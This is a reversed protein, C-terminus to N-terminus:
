KVVPKAAEKPAETVVPEETFKADEVIVAYYYGFGFDKDTDLRGEAVVTDGIKAMDNASRFVLKNKGKTGTGDQIHVWTMGMVNETVKVVKGRVKIIQGKMSDAIKYLREITYIGDAPAPESEEEDMAEEESSAEEDDASVEAADTGYGAGSHIEDVPAGDAEAGEDESASGDNVGSVFLIKEFTRNLAKSTFNPMWVQESFSVEAGKSVSTQPGAIWFKEGNEEINMYTYGGGTVSDLVIGKHEAASSISPSASMFLVATAASMFIKALRM